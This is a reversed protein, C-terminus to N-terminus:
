GSKTVRVFLHGCRGPTARQDHHAVWALVHQALSPWLYWLVRVPFYFTRFYPMNWYIPNVQCTSPLHLQIDEVTHGRRVHGWGRDLIRTLFPPVIWWYLSPTSLWLIGGPRLVRIAESLVRGYDVVHEIIDLLYVRDFTEDAFPLRSGDAKWVPYFGVEAPELDVAVRLRCVIRSLLYGDYCGVDLTWEHPVPLLGLPESLLWRYYTGLRL